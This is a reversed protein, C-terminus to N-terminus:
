IGTPRTLSYDCVLYDVLTKVDNVPVKKLEFGAPVRNLEFLQEDVIESLDSYNPTFESEIIKLAERCQKTSTIKFADNCSGFPTSQHGFLILPANYSMAELAITGNITAIATASEIVERSNIKNNLICVNDFKSIENYFDVTRYKDMSILYFWRGPHYAEFQIPHEKVYLIWGAPLAESLQKIIILQNSLITRSMISAEPDFHLAYFIYKKSTDLDVCVTDYRKRLRGVHFINQLIKYPSINFGHMFISKRFIIKLVMRLAIFAHLPFLMKLFEKFTKGRKKLETKIKEPYFLYNQMDVKELNFRSQDISVRSKLGYDFVARVSKVNEEERRLMHTEFIFASVDCEKAVDLALGDYNAGHERGELVIASINEKTFIDIWFSLANFYRYQKLSVDDSFRSQYYESNLQSERFKEITKYDLEREHQETYEDFRERSLINKIRYSSKLEDIKKDDAQVILYEINVKESESISKLLTLDLDILVINKKM